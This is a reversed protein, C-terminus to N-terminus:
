KRTITETKLVHSSLLHHSVIVSGLMVLGGQGRGGLFELM